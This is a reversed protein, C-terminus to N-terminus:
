GGGGAREPGSPVTWAGSELDLKHCHTCQGQFVTMFVNDAGGVLHVLHVLRSIEPAEDSRRSHCEICSRPIDNLVEPKTGPHMEELTGGPRMSARTKELLPAEVEQGWLALLTSFREDLNQEPYQIHCDVCGGPFRDEANIGPIERPPPLPADQSSVPTPSTATLVGLAVILAPIPIRTAM